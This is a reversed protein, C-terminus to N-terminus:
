NIIEWMSHHRHHEKSLLMELCNQLKLLFNLKEGM